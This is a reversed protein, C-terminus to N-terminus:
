EPSFVRLAKPLVDFTAPTRGAPEGDATIHHRHRQDIFFKHARLVRLGPVAERRGRVFAWVVDVAERLNDIQVSYLDLWGDDIAADSVAFVGGFRHSNAITLQMTRLRMVESDYRVEAHMPRAHAIARLATAVIGAIGYRRKIETNQWRAARSSIGISAEALFFMGNVRGVDVKRTHGAAILECAGGVDLPVNLTRALENFTGAPVIGIPIETKLAHPIAHTVTGDGGVVVMADVREESIKHSAGQVSAIQIDRRKLERVAVDGLERGRRSRVNVVVVVRV